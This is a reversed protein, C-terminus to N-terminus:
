SLHREVQAAFREEVRQWVWLESLKNNFCNKDQDQNHLELHTIVKSPNHLHLLHHVRGVVKKEDVLTLLLAVGSEAARHLLTGTSSGSANTAM